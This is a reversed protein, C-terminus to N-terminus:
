APATSDAVRQRARQTVGSEQGESSTETKGARGGSPLMPAEMGFQAALADTVETGGKADDVMAGLMMM